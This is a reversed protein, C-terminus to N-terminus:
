PASVENSGLEKETKAKAARQKRVEKPDIQLPRYIEVREGVALVHSGSVVKGFIGLKMVDSIILDDFFHEIGSQKVAELATTGVPVNLAVIRQTNPLAYAIEVTVTETM